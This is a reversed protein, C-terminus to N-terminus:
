EYAIGAVELQQEGAPVRFRVRQGLRANLLAKAIPSCWSVWDRDIDTEDVGVIRYKSEIGNNDRVTVTAGFRVQDWPEPPPQVIVASQLSQELYSIRQDLIQLHRRRESEPLSVAQPREVQVLRDLEDRLQQAGASTLYNKAGPPLPSPSRSVIPLDPVDDSERTFAKSM